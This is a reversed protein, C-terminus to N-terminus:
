PPPTLISAGHCPRCPSPHAVRQRPSGGEEDGGWYSGAFCKVGMVRHEGGGEVEKSWITLIREIM